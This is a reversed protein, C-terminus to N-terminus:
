GDNGPGEPTLSPRPVSPTRGRASDERARRTAAEFDELESRVGAADVPHRQPAPAATPRRSAARDLTAGRVRRRLPRSITELYDDDQARDRVHQDRAPDQRPQDSGAQDHRPQDDLGGRQAAAIPGGPSEDGDRRSVRRPLGSEHPAAAVLAPRPQRGSTSSPIARYPDAPATRSPIASAPLLLDGPISVTSTVGGGSTRGLGVGIGFRRSIRGVVFLGLVNTPALDLRERSLLRANEEVLQEAPIGIGHDIIEIVVGEAPSDVTVAVDVLTHAPSFFVGNQLLEALMLTLDSVVAPVVAVEPAPRLSVREYGGITSLAARLVDALGTPGQADIDEAAERKGAIVQLSEANRRLRTAINDIQYLPRLLEPDTQSQELGEILDLQRSALNSVRHGINGFMKEVNGRVTVQRELLASASAQVHNFAEALAGIEDRVPVPVERLRPPGTEASEDDAVRALERGTADAVEQAAVTLVRVPRAVSRRVLFSFLLWAALALVAGVLLTITHRWAQSSADEADAAIKNILSHTVALREKAQAAYAPENGLADNIAVRLKDPTQAQLSTPDVLQANYQDEIISQQSGREMGDLEHGQAQPSLSKFLDAANDYQRRDGVGRAFENIANAGGTQAGFVSIEFAAHAADAGLLADLRSEASGPSSIASTGLGLGSILKEVLSTYTPDINDAPIYTRGIMQRLGSLKGISDMAASEAAPLRPGFGDRVQEVQADVAHQAQIYTANSPTEVGTQSAQQRVSLLLAQRHETQLNDILTAVRESDRVLSAADAAHRAEVVQNTVVYALMAAVVIVPVMVLLYLKRGFSWREMFAVITRGRSRRRAPPRGSAAGEHSSM